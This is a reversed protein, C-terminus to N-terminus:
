RRSRSAQVGVQRNAQHLGRPVPLAPSVVEFEARRSDFYEKSAASSNTYLYENLLRFQSSKLDESFQNPKPQQPIIPTKHQPGNAPKSPHVTAGQKPKFPPKVTNNISAPNQQLSKNNPHHSNTPLAPPRKNLNPLVYAPKSFLKEM